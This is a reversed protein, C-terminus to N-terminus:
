SKVIITLQGMPDKLFVIGHGIHTCKSFNLLDCLIRVSFITVALFSLLMLDCQM